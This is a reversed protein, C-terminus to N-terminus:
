MKQYDRGNDLVNISLKGDQSMKVVIKLEGTSNKEVDREHIANVANEIVNTFVRSLHSRDCSIVADDEKIQIDTEFNIDTRGTKELLLVEDLIQLVSQDEFVPTPMRAFDSFENLMSRMDETQRIITETLQQFLEKDSEAMTKLYKRKLREASLQIPTLPNKIEHALRRAIDSWAAVKQASMLPSVDDFTMVVSTIEGGGIRQPVMRVLLSLIRGEQDLQMNKQWLEKPKDMFEKFAEALMGELKEGTDTRLLEKASKNITQITGDADVALIGASVGTLVAEMTKRRADIEKNKRELLSRNQKLQQTMRNFSQTLIGMEDDDHPELRIDLEGASVKNTAHM